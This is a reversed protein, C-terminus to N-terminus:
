VFCLHNMLAIKFLTNIVDYIISRKNNNAEINDM